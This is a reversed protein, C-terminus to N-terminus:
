MQEVTQIGLLEFGLKLTRAAHDCLMFRTRRTEGESGIVPCNTYFGSLKEALEYLYGCLLNPRYEAAVAKVADPFRLLHKGLAREADHELRYPGADARVQEATTGAKRLIARPRVYQYLLYPATNGDLAVMKDMSFKYDTSRNQMLDAYKVASIGVATGIAKQEAAPLDPRLTQVIKLSRDEAEDLLDQLQVTEGGRTRLLKGDEGLVSGFEIHRLEIRDYGWRRATAFLQKFHDSQPAGVVYLAADANFHEVRYRVTALDTTAYNFGGDSKQVIFPTAPLGPEDLRVVWAGESPEAIGKAKLSEVVSGLMPNYFSEGLVHDFSVGLRAYVKNFERMSLDYFRQWLARNDADGRQLKVLEERAQRIMAEADLAGYPGAAFDSLERELKGRVDAPLGPRALTERNELVKAFGAMIRYVRVLEEIPNKELAAPDVFRRYGVILMGFQTGWDGLHNDTIVTHGLFRLLRALCDGIITSRIHGVHMPKAVNPSSFDVVFTRAPEARAVGLREDAFQGTLRRAVWAPALRLNIFGPGDIRAEAFMDGADLRAVVAAAIERPNAKGLKKKLGMAVNSQYDGFKADTAVTVLAPSDAAQPFAAAVARGVVTEIEELLTAMPYGCVPFTFRFAARTGM